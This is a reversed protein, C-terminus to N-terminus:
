LHPVKGNTRAKEESKKQAEVAEVTQDLAAAVLDLRVNEDRLELLSQLVDDDLEVQGAIRYSLPADAPRPDSATGQALEALRRFSATARAVLGPDPTVDLDIATVCQASTYLHGETEDAVVMPAIGEVVVVMRGDDTRQVMRVFRAACGVPARVQGQTRVLVFPRDDLVCDAYLQRYRMEFIHLPRFEGPMMVLDLPFLGLDHPEAMSPLM